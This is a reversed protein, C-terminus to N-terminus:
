GILLCHYKAWNMSKNWKAKDEKMKDILKWLRNIELDKAEIEKHLKMLVWKYKKIKEEMEIKSMSSSSTNM